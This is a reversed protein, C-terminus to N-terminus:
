YGEPAKDLSIFRKNFDSTSDSVGGDHTNKFSENISLLDLEDSAQIPEIWGRWSSHNGLPTRQPHVVDTNLVVGHTERFYRLIEAYIEEIYNNDKHEDSGLDVKGGHLLRNRVGNGYGFVKEFLDTDKFIVKKIYDKDTKKTRGKPEVREGAMAELASFLMTLRTYHTTANTFECLYRFVDGKEKYAELAKLAAIEPKLFGLPTVSKEEAYRFYLQRLENDNTKLVLFPDHGAVTYCQSVFAIRDVVSFLERRFRSFAENVSEAEIKKIASWAGGCTGSRWDINWPKLTFGRFEFPDYLEAVSTIRHEIHYRNM